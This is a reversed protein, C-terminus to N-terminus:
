TCQSVVGCSVRCRSCCQRSCSSEALGAMEMCADDNCAYKQPWAAWVSSGLQQLGEHLWGESAGRLLGQLVAVEGARNPGFSARMAACQQLLPEFRLSLDEALQALEQLVEPPLAAAAAADPHEKLQRLQACLWDFAAAHATLVSLVAPECRGATAQQLHNQLWAPAGVFLRGLAVLARGTLALWAPFM